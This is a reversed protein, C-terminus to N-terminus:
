VPLQNPLASPILTYASIACYFCIERRTKFSKRLKKVNCTINKDLCYELLLETSRSHSNDTSGELKQNKLHPYQTKKSFESGCGDLSRVSESHWAIWVCNSLPSVWPRNYTITCVSMSTSYFYSWLRELPLIGYLERKSIDIRSEKIGEVLLLDRRRSDSEEGKEKEWRTRNMPVTSM